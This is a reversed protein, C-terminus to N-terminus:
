LRNRLANRFVAIGAGGGMEPRAFYVERYAPRLEAFRQGSLFAACGCTDVTIPSVDRVMLVGIGQYAGTTDEEFEELVQLETRPDAKGRAITDM